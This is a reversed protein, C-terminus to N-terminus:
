RLEAGSRALLNILFLNLLQPSGFVQTLAPIPWFPLATSEEASLPDRLYIHLFCAFDANSRSVWRLM